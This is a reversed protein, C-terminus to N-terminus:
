GCTGYVILHRDGARAVDLQGLGAEELQLRIEEVEFAALLSNYFDRKLIEPENPSYTEVLSRAEGVSAPRMLDMIFVRTGPYSLKKVALWLHAPDSLHHLLSNSVILDYYKVPTYEQINGHIFRVRGGLESRKRLGEEAYHLMAASGDIADIMAGPLMSAVRFTIDGTGCGMDLVTDANRYRNLFEMLQRIFNSHPEEFDARAYAHAQEPDDMLEPEPIRKM